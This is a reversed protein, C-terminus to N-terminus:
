VEEGILAEVAAGETPEHAIPCPSGSAPSTGASRLSRPRVQPPHCARRTTGLLRPSRAPDRGQVM